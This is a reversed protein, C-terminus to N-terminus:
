ISDLIIGNSPLINQELDTKQHKSLENSGKNAEFATTYSNCLDFKMGFVSSVELVIHRLPILYRMIQSLSIYEAETTLLDIDTQM